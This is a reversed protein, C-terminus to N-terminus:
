LSAAGLWEFPDAVDTSYLGEIDREWEIFEASMELGLARGRSTIAAEAREREAVWDIVETERYPWKVLVRAVMQKVLRGTEPDRGNNTMGGERRGDPLRGCSGDGVYPAKAPLVARGDGIRGERFPRMPPDDSSQFQAM